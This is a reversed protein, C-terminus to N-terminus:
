QLYATMPNYEFYGGSFYKASCIYIDTYSPLLISYLAKKVTNKLFSVPFYPFVPFYPIGLFLCETQTHLEIVSSWVIDNKTNLFIQWPLGSISLDFRLNLM